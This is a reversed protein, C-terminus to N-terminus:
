ISIVSVLVMFRVGARVDGKLHQEEGAAYNGMDWDLQRALRDM